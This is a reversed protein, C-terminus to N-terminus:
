INLSVVFDRAECEIYCMYKETQSEESCSNVYWM